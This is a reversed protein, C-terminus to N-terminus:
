IKDRSLLATLIVPKSIEGSVQVKVLLEIMDDTVSPEGKIYRYIKKISITKLNSSISSSVKGNIPNLYLIETKVFVYPSLERSSNEDTTLFTNYDSVSFGSKITQLITDFRSQNFNEIEKQAISTMTARTKSVKSSKVGSFLIPLVGVMAIVILLATILVETLMFGKQFNTRRTNIKFIM